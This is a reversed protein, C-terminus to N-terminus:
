APVPANTEPNSERLANALHVSLEAAVDGRMSAVNFADCVDEPKRFLAEQVEEGHTARRYFWERTRIASAPGEQIVIADGCDSSVSEEHLLRGVISTSVLRDDRRGFLGGPGDVVLLPIHLRDDCLLALPDPEAESRRVLGAVGAVILRWDPGAAKQWADFLKQIGRDIKELQEFLGPEGEADFWPAAKVKLGRHTLWVTSGETAALSDMAAESEASLKGCAIPSVPSAAPMGFQLRPDAGPRDAFCGDYVTGHIALRDFGRTSASMGGYCGLWRRPLWDFTVLLVRM